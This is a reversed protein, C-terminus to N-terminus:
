YLSDNYTFNLPNPHSYRFNIDRTIALGDIVRQDFKFPHNSCSYNSQKFIPAPLGLLESTLQYFANRSPHIPACLNYIPMLKRNCPSFPHILKDNIISDIANIVDEGHVFNVLSTGELQLAAEPKQFFRGPHRNAGALGALRLITINDQLSEILYQELEVLVKGPLSSPNCSSAEDYVGPSDGYVSTSSTFITHKVKFNKAITILQKVSASYHELIAPNRSAPLTIILCDTEQFLGQISLLLPDPLRKKENLLAEYENESIPLTLPYCGVSNEKPPQYDLLSRKSGVVQHKSSLRHALPMGLWGLGVIAIKM